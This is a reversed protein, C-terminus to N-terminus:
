PGGIEWGGGLAKYLAILALVTRTQSEALQVQLSLVTRQADLTALFDVAGAQYRADAISAAQEAAAVAEVLAERRARQRGFQVLANETEELAELVTQQYYDLEAEARADAARIRAAVRGLDFAAWTLRPGFTYAAAGSQFLGSVTKAEPGLSASFTLRPFLDATAVGIRATAAALRREARRIDPRRRLLDEPRGIAVLKPLAGTPGVPGLELAFGSPQAGLLVALRNKARAADVEIPPLIALTSKYEARARSVDLETGRGADFRAVTLRLTEEQVAANKRAVELQWRAGRLEFYNRAVEGLLSLVVDRRTAEALGVEADAAEMSRRVRGFLDLEWAADFGASFFGFTRASRPVTSLFTANSLMLRTYGAGATVTPALDFTEQAYLARAERLLAATAAVTRNGVVARDILDDLTPDHFERWWAVPASDQTLGDQLAGEYAAATPTSPEQYDPGVSCGLSLLVVAASAIRRAM